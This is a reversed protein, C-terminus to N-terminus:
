AHATHEVLTGTLRQWSNPPPLHHGVDRLEILRAGPIADALARGHDLPFLPDATGHVVLTSLGGAPETAPQGKAAWERSPADERV